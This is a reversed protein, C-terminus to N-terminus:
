VYDVNCANSCELMHDLQIEYLNEHRRDFLTRAHTYRLSLSLTKTQIHMKDYIEFCCCFILMDNRVENVKNLIIHMSSKM